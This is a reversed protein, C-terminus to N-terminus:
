PRRRRGPRGPGPAPSRTRRRAASRAARGRARLSIRSMPASRSRRRAVDEVDAGPGHRGAADDAHAPRQRQDDARDSPRQAVQAGAAPRCRRRGRGRGLAVQRHRDDSSPLARGPPRSRRRRVQHGVITSEAPMTPATSITSNPNRNTVTEDRSVPSIPEDDFGIEPMVIAVSSSVQRIKTRSPSSRAPLVPQRRQRDRRDDADGDDFPPVVECSRM